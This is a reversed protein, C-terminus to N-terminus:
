SSVVGALVSVCVILAAILMPGGIHPHHAMLWLLGHMLFAIVTLGVGTLVAVKANFTVM